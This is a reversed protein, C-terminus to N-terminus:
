LLLQVKKIQFTKLEVFLTHQTKYFFNLHENQLSPHLSVFHVNKFINKKNPGTTRVASFKRGRHLNTLLVETINTLEIDRHFVTTIAFKLFLSEM